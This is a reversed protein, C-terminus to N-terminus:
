RWGMVHLLDQHKVNYLPARATTCYRRQLLRCPGSASACDPRTMPFLFINSHALKCSSKLKYGKQAKTEYHQLLAM